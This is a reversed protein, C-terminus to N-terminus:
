VVISEPSLRRNAPRLVWSGVVLLGFLLSWISQAPGDGVLTHSVFAGFFLIALGSYAWEKLRLLGPVLLVLTAGLKCIGLLAALYLPYGLHRLVGDVYGQNLWNLDWLAGHVLEFCILGTVIWYGIRRVRPTPKRENTTQEDANGTRLSQNETGITSQM